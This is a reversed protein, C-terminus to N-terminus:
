ANKKDGDISAWFTKMVALTSADLPTSNKLAFQVIDAAEDITLREIKMQGLNSIGNDALIKMEIIM